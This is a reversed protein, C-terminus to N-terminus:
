ERAEEEGEAAQREEEEVQWFDKKKQGVASMKKIKIYMIKKKMIEKSNRENDREVCKEKLYSCDQMVIKKSTKRIKRLVWGFTDERSIMAFLTEICVTNEGKMM